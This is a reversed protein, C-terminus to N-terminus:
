SQTMQTNYNLCSPEAVNRPARLQGLNFIGGDIRYSVGVSKSTLKPDFIHLITNVNALFFTTALVCGQCVRYEVNFPESRGNEFMLLATDELHLNKIIQLLQALCGFKQVLGWLTDRNVSDFTKQVNIFAVYLNTHLELAKGSFIM